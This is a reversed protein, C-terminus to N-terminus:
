KLTVVFGTFTTYGTSSNHPMTARISITENAVSYYTGYVIGAQNSRCNALVGSGSTLYMTPYSAAGSETQYFM